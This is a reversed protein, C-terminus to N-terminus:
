DVSVMFCKDVIINSDRIQIPIEQPPPLFSASFTGELTLMILPNSSPSLVYLMASPIEPSNM